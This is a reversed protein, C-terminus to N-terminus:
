SIMRLPRLVTVTSIGTTRDVEADLVFTDIGNEYGLETSVITVVTGISAIWDVGVFQHIDQTFPGRSLFALQRDAEALAATRTAIGTLRETSLATGGWRTAAVADSRLAYDATTQLWQAYLPDVAMSIVGIKAPLTEAAAEHRRLCHHSRARWYHSRLM